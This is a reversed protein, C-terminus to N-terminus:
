DGHEALYQMAEKMGPSDMIEHMSEMIRKSREIDAELAAVSKEINELAPFVMAHIKELNSPYIQSLGNKSKQASKYLVTEFEDTKQFAIKALLLLEELKLINSM